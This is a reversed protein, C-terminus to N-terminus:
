VGPVLQLRRLGVSRRDMAQRRTGVDSRIAPQAFEIAAEVADSFSAPVRSALGADGVFADWNAQRREGLNGLAEALSRQTTGRYTMTADIAASLTRGAVPFQDTLMYVDAFDRERTTFAGRELMTVIKEALVTEFPYGVITFPDHLLGPYLIETPAPTVPDGINVDIRLVARARDVSAPVTVRVGPYLAQDRITTVSMEETNFAVGDDDQVALISTIMAAVTSRDNSIHQALLDIDATPRRQGFAVLLMAGKLVLQERYASRSARWLFREHVYTRLLEGTQREMKRALRQLDLYARGATTARSVPKM